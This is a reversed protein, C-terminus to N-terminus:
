RVVEIRFGKETIAYLRKQYLEFEKETMIIIHQPERKQSHMLRGFRQAEQRRSGYHFSVERVRELNGISVGEDGVRSVVVVDSSRIVELRNKTGGHVFPVGFRASIRKGFDISDCFIITKLPLRLLEELRKMKDQSNRVIYVRFTPVKVYGQQILEDWNLGGRTPLWCLLM